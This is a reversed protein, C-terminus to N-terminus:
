LLEISAFDRVQRHGAAPDPEGDRVLWATHMGAARAADLEAEIDSLFLIDGPDLALETSIRRYSETDNKAGTTTDFYGNLLPNLDGHDTHGFLLKQAHVSGSSYIYLGIGHRHWAHLQQAADAYVHGTFDGNRYGAEWLLGQISKLPTIKRDQDIWEILRAIAEDVSLDTGTERRVDDLQAAIKENGAHERVFDGIHERAYPFLVDKVFALSSTTGEIDSVIARIM